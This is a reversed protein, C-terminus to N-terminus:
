TSFQCTTHETSNVPYNLDIEQIELQGQFGPPCNCGDCQLFSIRDDNTANETCLFFTSGYILLFDSFHFGIICTYSLFPINLKETILYVFTPNHLMWTVCHQISSNVATSYIMFNMGHGKHFSPCFSYIM